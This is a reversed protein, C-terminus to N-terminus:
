LGGDEDPVDRSYESVDVSVVEVLAYRKGTARETGITECEDGVDFAVDFTNGDLVMVAHERPKGGYAVDIGWSRVTETRLPRRLTATPVSSIKPTWTPKTDMAGM